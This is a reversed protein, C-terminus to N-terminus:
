VDVLNYIVDPMIGYREKFGKASSDSVAVFSDYNGIIDPKYNILHPSSYNAHIMLTKVQATVTDCHTGWSTLSLFIDCFLDQGKYKEVPVFEEIEKTTNGKDICYVFTIDYHKHMQKIFVKAFTVVGGGVSLSSLYVILKQKEM